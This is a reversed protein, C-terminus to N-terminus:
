PLLLMKQWGPMLAQKPYKMSSQDVKIIIFHWPQSNVASPGSMAAEIIKRIDGEPIEEKTYKRISRRTRLAELVEM